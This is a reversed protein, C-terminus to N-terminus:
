KAMAILQVAKRTKLSQLSLSFFLYQSLNHREAVLTGVSRFVKFVQTAAYLFQKFSDQTSHHHPM